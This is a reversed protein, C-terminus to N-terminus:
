RAVAGASGPRPQGNSTSSRATCAVLEAMLEAAARNTLGRGRALFRWTHFDLALAVITAQSERRLGRPRWGEVLLDTVRAVYALSGAEVQARLEPITAADRIVNALM